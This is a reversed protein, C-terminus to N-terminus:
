SADKGQRARANADAFEQTVFDLDFPREVREGPGWQSRPERVFDGGYVHIAGTLHDLPNHVSHITDDGLLILHGAELVKDGTEIIHDREDPSRRFFLNDERGEYVAIAAWMRHDHPLLTFGAPWVLNIVTLDPTNYLIDLGGEDPQFASAVEGPREITRALVDRVALLPEEAANAEICTAILEDVDFGAV